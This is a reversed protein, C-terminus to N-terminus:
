KEKELFYLGMAISDTIDNGSEFDYNKLQKKYKNKIFEFVEEKTKLEFKSRVTNTHIFIPEIDLKYCSMNVVTVFQMLTKLTKVNKLYTEEVVVENPKYIVLLAGVQSEFWYLKEQLSFKKPIEIRGFERLKGDEFYSYGTCISSVDFSMLSM